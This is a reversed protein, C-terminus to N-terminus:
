LAWTLLEPLIAAGAVGIQDHYTVATRRVDFADMTSWRNFGSYFSFGLDYGSEKGIRQTEATFHARNGMPYAISRVAGGTKRAILEKSVTLEARQREPDLQGLVPHSHTHSGIAIGHERMEKLQEWTMLEREQDRASPPDVECLTDLHDLPNRAESRMRDIIKRKLFAFAEERRRVLDLTRGEYTIQTKTTRKLMYALRDWWGLRRSEILGSPVFFIAPIQHRRLVPYAHTYNDRYGDDTTVLVSMEGPGRGFRLCEIIEAETLVRIHRKLWLMQEEFQSATPGYAGDDFPTSFGADDPRIRHYNLVVMRDRRLGKLILLTGTRFLVESLM